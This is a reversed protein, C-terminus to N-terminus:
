SSGKGRKRLGRLLGWGGVNPNLGRLRVESSGSPPKLGMDPKQATRRRILLSGSSLIAITLALASPEPVTNAVTMPGNTQPPTLITDSLLPSDRRPRSDRVLSAPEDTDGPTDDVVNGPFDGATIPPMPLPNIGPAPDSILSPAPPTDPQLAWDRIDEAPPQGSPPIAPSPLRRNTPIVDQAVIFDGPAEAGRHTALLAALGSLAGPLGAWFPLGTLPLAAIGTTGGGGGGGTPTVPMEQEPTNTPTLNLPPTASRMPGLAQAVTSTHLPPLQENPDFLPVSATQEAPLLMQPVDLETRLPNGCVQALVPTGDQLAYVPTGRRVRRVRYGLTEGQHVYYVRLVRDTNLRTLVMGAFAKRLAQPSQRFVRAYRTAVRTDTHLARNLAAANPAPQRLFSGPPMKAGARASNSVVALSIGVSLTLFTRFLRNRRLVQM